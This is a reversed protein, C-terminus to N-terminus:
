ASFGRQCARRQQQKRTHRSLQKNALIRRALARTASIAAFCREHVERQQTRATTVVTGVHRYEPVFCLPMGLSTEVLAAGEVTAEDMKSRMAAAGVGRFTAVCETKNPKMNLSMGYKALIGAFLEAISVVRQVLEEPSDGAVLCAMDDMFTPEEIRREDETPGGTPFISGKNYALETHYGLGDVAERLERQVEAFVFCFAVDALPDGPRCGNWLEVTRQGGAVGFATHRHWDAAFRRWVHAIGFRKISTAENAVINRICQRAEDPIKAQVM